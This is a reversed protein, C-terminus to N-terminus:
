AKTSKSRKPPPPKTSNKNPIQVFRGKCAGRKLIGKIFDGDSVEWESDNENSSVEESFESESLQKTGIKAKKSGGNNQRTTNSKSRKARSGSYKAAHGEDAATAIESDEGDMSLMDIPIHM